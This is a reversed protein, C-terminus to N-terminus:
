RREAGVGFQNALKSAAVMPDLMGPNGNSLIASRMGARSLCALMGPVEPFPDLALYSGMLRERVAPDTIRHTALSHDLAEGTVQGSRRMLAWPTAYAM